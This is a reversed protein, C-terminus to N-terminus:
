QPGCSSPLTASARPGEDEDLRSLGDETAIEVGGEGDERGSRVGGSRGLVGM